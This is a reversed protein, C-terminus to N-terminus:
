LVSIQVELGSFKKITKEMKQFSEKLNGVTINKFYQGQFSFELRHVEGSLDNNKKDKRYKKINLTPNTKGEKKTKYYTTNWCKIPTRHKCLNKIVKDPIKGTFDMAIDVRTVKEDQIHIWLEKLLDSLLNSRDNFGHLGAFELTQRDQSVSHRKIPVTLGTSTHLIKAEVINRTLPKKFTDSWVQPEFVGIGKVREVIYNGNNLYEELHTSSFNMSDINGNVKM